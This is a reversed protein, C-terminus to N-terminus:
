VCFISENEMIWRLSSSSLHDAKECTAWLRQAVLFFNSLIAYSWFIQDVYKYRKELSCLGHSWMKCGMALCVSETNLAM